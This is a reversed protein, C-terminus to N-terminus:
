SIWTNQSQQTVSISNLVPLDSDQLLFDSTYPVNLTTVGDPAVEQIGYAVNDSARALRINDVGTVEHAIELIDSIQIIAGFDLKNFLDTLASSISSNVASPSAGADYIAVLNVNFYRYNAGHVLVDTAIQKYNDMLENLTLILKNFIYTITFQTGFDIAVAAPPTWEIGGLSRRSNRLVTDDQVLFYDSGEFFTNGNVTISSPLSTIPQWLLKQFINGTAPQERTLTRQFNGIYYTSTATSTFVQTGSAPMVAVEYANEDDNGSVYVDIYNAVGSAPINRSNVSCYSHELLLVADSVLNRTSDQALVTISPPATHGGSNFSYDVDPTFFIETSGTTPNTLYYDFTYTYGSYPIVSTATLSPPIQIYEFFRDIPGIVKARNSFNSAIALALYQSKTGSINRFITNKFRVRLEADEEQNLGGTTAVTNNVYSIQTVNTGAQSIVTNAPVNGITGINICQIPADVSTTNKYLVVSATTMFTVPGSVSSSPVLIQTGAPIFVDQTATSDVSFSVTGTARTGGQRAFGFM